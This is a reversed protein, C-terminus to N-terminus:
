AEMTAAAHLREASANMEAMTTTLEVYVRDEISVTGFNSNEGDFRGAAPQDAHEFWHYGVVHPHKLATTVYAGFAAARAAQNAVVPGAGRTNPLGSDAGRFSFEGILLPKGCREYIALANAPNPDYCNFSVVDVHRAAATVIADSPPYAFRSGLILHNGDAARLGAATLAFYREAVLAAFDDCDACFAARAPDARNAALEAAADRLYPPERRYPPAFRAITGLGNWTQATSHWSANFSTIDPHRQRLWDLAARRGPTGRTLNLFLTLLEDAGRWDPGWRLENDTFWGLINADSARASCKDRARQMVHAEFAPDFIDPFEQRPALENQKNKAWAFSLGLDLNPAIALTPGAEAVAEDSWSGLTNFSWGALRRAVAIRWGAIGGYKRWCTEAYPVDKTGQIEDQDFRVTNVGKSLFRGGDPDILWFAGDDHDIRFRGASRGRRDAVGGWQTREVPGSMGSMGAMGTMGNM